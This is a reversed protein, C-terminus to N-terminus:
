GLADCIGQTNSPPHQLNIGPGFMGPFIFDHRGAASLIAGAVPDVVVRGADLAVIGHGEVMVMATLGTFTIRTAVGSESEITAVFHGLRTGTVDPQANSTLVGAYSVRRVERVLEGSLKYFRTVDVHTGTGQEFTQAADCTV